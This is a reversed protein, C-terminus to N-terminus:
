FPNQTKLELYNLISDVVKIQTKSVAKCGNTDFMCIIGDIGATLVNYGISKSAIAIGRLDDYHCQFYPMLM